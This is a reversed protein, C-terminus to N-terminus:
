GADEGPGGAEASRRRAEDSITVSDAGEQKAGPKERKSRREKGGADPDIRVQEPIRDVIYSM